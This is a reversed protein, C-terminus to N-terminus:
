WRPTIQPAAEDACHGEHRIHHPRSHPPHGTLPKACLKAAQKLNLKALSKGFSFLFRLM